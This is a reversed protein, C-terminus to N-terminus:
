NGVVYRGDFDRGIILTFDSRLDLNQMAVELSASDSFDPTEFVINSARIINAFNRAMVEYGSRDIIVTREYDSHEANGVAIVDYGFERLIEATRGALGSTTTGNLVEVTFHRDMGEAPRTIGTLTRRVVERILHGDHTPILLTRGSVQRTTGSVAHVSIRSMDMRAFEDFIALRAREDLETRMLSRHLRAVEPTQLWANTEAQRELFSLFFRQRRREAAEPDEGPAVHTFYSLAKSGCLRNIGSPLLVLRGSGDIFDVREPMFLDIGEMLDISRGLDAASMVISFTIEIGLVGSVLTEYPSIHEPDFVTAIRDVRNISRILMGIDGPVDFVASRRTNPYFLVVFTNLPEGNEEIVYLVSIVRDEAFFEQIPDSRLSYLAFAVGGGLLIVIAVLLLASADRGVFARRKEM